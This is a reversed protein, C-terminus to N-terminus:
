EAASADGNVLSAVPRPLSSNEAIVTRSVALRRAILAAGVIGADDGLAAPVINLAHTAAFMPRKVVEEAVQRVFPEGLAEVLGGGMVVLEPNLVNALNAIGMSLYKAARNIAKMVVKDGQRLAEALDSSTARSVDDGVIHTLATKQGRQARRALDRVIASRSALAELHGRAGCACTPGGAKITMHGIEGAANTVGGVLQGHIVVGGGIGTGLWVGLMSQSGRGAGAVHEALVAVRVDNEVAVPVGALQELASRLPVDRWGLNVAVTVVGTDGEVPGPAGVGVALLQKPAIGAATTADRLCDAIRAIVAEADSQRGVTKKKSRSCITGDPAVVAALIKTGGLDVAGVYGDGALPGPGAVAAEVPVQHDSETM